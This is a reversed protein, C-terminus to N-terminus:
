KGAGWLHWEAAAATGAATAAAVLGGVVVCGSKLHAKDSSEAITDDATSANANSPM